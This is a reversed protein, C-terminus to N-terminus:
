KGPWFLVVKRLASQACFEWLVGLFDTWRLNMCTTRWLRDICATCMFCELFYFWILSQYKLLSYRWWGPAKQHNSRPFYFLISTNHFRSISPYHVSLVYTLPTAVWELRFSSKTWIIRFPKGEIKKWFKSLIQWISYFWILLRCKCKLPFCPIQMSHTSAKYALHTGLTLM